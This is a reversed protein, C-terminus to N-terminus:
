ANNERRWITAKNANLKRRTDCFDKLKQSKCEKEAQKYLEAVHMANNGFDDSSNDLLRELLMAKELKSGIEKKDTDAFVSVIMKRESAFKARSKYNNQRPKVPKDRTAYLDDHWIEQEM